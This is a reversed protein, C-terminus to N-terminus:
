LPGGEEGLVAKRVEPVSTLGAAGGRWTVRGRTLLIAHEAIMEAYGLNQEVLLIRIDAAILSILSEFVDDAARPSLGLTPEDLLMVAPEAILGRGIALMRQEGGSLTGAAQKRREKLVPFLAYARDLSASSIRVSLAEAAIVLNEEVTMGGFVARGEPIHVIGARARRHPDWATIDTAAWSIKGARCRLVGGIVRLLTTKGAGNPGVVAVVRHSSMSITCDALAAPGRGYGATVGQVDLQSPKGPDGTTRPAGGGPSMQDQHM